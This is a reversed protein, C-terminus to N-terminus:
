RSGPLWLGLAQARQTTEIRHQVNVAAETMQGLQAEAAGARKQAEVAVCRAHALGDRYPQRDQHTMRGFCISCPAAHGASRRQARNLKQPKRLRPTSM